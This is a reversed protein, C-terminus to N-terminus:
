VDWEPNHKEIMWERVLDGGRMNEKKDWNIAWERNPLYNEDTFVTELMGISGIAPYKDSFELEDPHQKKNRVVIVKNGAKFDSM